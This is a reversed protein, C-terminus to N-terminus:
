GVAAPHGPRINQNLRFLNAPDYINKLAVLRAYKEDGYAGRVRDPEPTFNLYSAGTGFPRMAAAFARGAATMRADDSRDAWVCIPHFLYRADRHSFATAGDPVAAVAQGIRFVVMESLPAGLATLGVAHALFADIADDGLERMYEGRWYSRLGPPALPDLAAQFATYPMPAIGDVVPGLDKLPRVAEVGRDADGVYLAAMGLVRKGRLDEPVFPEPPATLVVCATALEDPAADARDRWGRLVEPAREVPFMALGALVTPGLAHLRFEFETVIGFNGGGGRIGWFLDAHEHESARVVRGDALVVEASLLNDCALGHKCSTWGYGGGTTFGGIGTTTVRGGPTHLGHAQTAADFEGWLVGGGARATRAGPDVSITKLGRLDILMGDDCTGLGAVSHGGCRVAVVLDHDRALDVAAVVDATDAPRAIVAPHRDIVANFVQRAEDYGPEAPRLVQGSFRRRLVAAPDTVTM